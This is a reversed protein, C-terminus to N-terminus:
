RWETLEMELLEALQANSDAFYQRLYSELDPSLSVLPESSSDSAHIVQDINAPAFDPVVGLFSFLDQVAPASGVFREQIIVKINEHPFHRQYMSIYDVYRGRKLYAYPSASVRTRDYHERREDEHRFAEEMTLKEFGNKVSFRYNSIARSIPNRVLFVIKADPYCESIRIATKQSEMYSTSKEGRMRAGAKNRFFTLDYYAIGREFLHDILFFKPEPRVPHAMEIEPHQALIHYLYTTACRQAGAVFFHDIM